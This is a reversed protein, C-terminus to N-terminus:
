ATCTVRIWLTTNGRERSLGRRLRPARVGTRIAPRGASRVKTPDRAVAIPGGFPAAVVLHDGIDLDDGRCGADTRPARRRAETAVRLAAVLPVCWLMSEFVRVTRFSHDGLQRWSALELYSMSRLPVPPVFFLVKKEGKERKM